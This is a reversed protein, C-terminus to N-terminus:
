QVTEVLIPCYFKRLRKSKTSLAVRRLSIRPKLYHILKERIENKSKSETPNVFSVWDV